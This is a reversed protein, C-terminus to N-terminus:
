FILSFLHLLFKLQYTVKIKQIFIVEGKDSKVTVFSTSSADIVPAISVPNPSPITNLTSPDVPPVSKIARIIFLAMGLIVMDLHKTKMSPKTTRDDPITFLFISVPKYEAILKYIIIFIISKM